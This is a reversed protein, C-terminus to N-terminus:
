KKKPPKKEDKPQVVVTAAATQTSSQKEADVGRRPADMLAPLPSPGESRVEFGIEKFPPYLEANLRGLADRMKATWQNYITLDMAKKWGNEYADLAKEEIPVVFTEIQSTFDEKEQDTKAEGPVPADRLSKAFTEYTHGVQYLAATTWEAVGFSVVDLFVTAAQKLLEAKEKLRKGLQKVDGEIKIAEFKALVREGQMYRAQAAAFKGDPGLQTKLQKGTRAANALSDEAGKADGEKIQAKALLVYGQVRHDQNKSGRALYRKYLDAADKNRGSDQHARGMQFVVEDAEAANPYLALFKNGAAIAKDHDGSAVRLIVANYAADKGHEYKQYVPVKADVNAVIAEDFLAADDFLGMAQLTSAAVWAGMPSEPKDRYDKGTILTAAEKLSTVDGALKAETEASVAAQAARPDKPYEKAARLYAATAGPHDNAQAKQEGQRFMSQVILEELKGQHKADAFAPYTKLKRAWQEINEFNKSKVFSDIILEGAMQAHSDHPWKELMTGWLRVASDYVQYDYYLKGQRFFLDPLAPDTPYLQSYLDLAETFKKDTESELGGGKAKRAELEAIRVRELSAIANYIADHRKLPDGPATKDLEEPMARAANMYHTAAETNKNLRRFDIEACYYEIQYAKPEKSFKTLYAEYLDTAGQFEATSTRDKQAKANLYISHERLQKEIKAATATVNAPDAQTRAWAGGPTFGDLARKYTDKLHPYDELWNYGQAIQMIWEGGERATPELKLLLEYAEIGREYHAQDYYTTSLARVIRGAFKDGGIKTLFNYMDQATNKEDETFVEVLYKLAEGQLEDLAKQQSVNVGPRGATDTVQFVQVFRKTAEDTNGLRWHCWASKFLALGVLDVKERFKLVEEYENLATQYDPKNFYTEARAMHADAIFRSNPFEKLIRTFREFAEETKGQETALFGDVYLALDYQQFWPYDKLVKEFLTRSIAYNIDPAPGRQDVPKKEWDKFREVVTERENEWYLEGLRMMAEPMEPTDRPAEKIFTELLKIAEGRLERIQVIDREVRADLQAKLHARVAEPLKPGRIAPTGPHESEAKQLTVHPKEKQTVTLMSESSAKVQSSEGAGAPTDTTPTKGPGAHSVSACTVALVFSAMRVRRM